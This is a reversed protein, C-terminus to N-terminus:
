HKPVLNNLLPPAEKYYMRHLLTLAGVIRREDLPQIQTKNVADSTFNIIKLARRQISDLRALEVECAAMWVTPDYEVCSRVM